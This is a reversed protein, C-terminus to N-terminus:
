KGRATRIQVGEIHAAPDEIFQIGAKRLVREVQMLTSVRSDVQGRELRALANLAIM